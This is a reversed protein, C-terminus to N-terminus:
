SRNRAREVLDRDEDSIPTPRRGRRVAVSGLSGVAVVVVAVPLAWVFLGAGAAEPSLVIDQGYSGVLYAVVDGDSQGDRVRRRVEDRIAEAAPADSAAASLGRCTPCRVRAAIAQVQEDESRPGRDGSAGIGLAVALIGLLVSWTARRSM